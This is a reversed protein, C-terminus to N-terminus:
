TPNREGTLPPAVKLVMFNTEVYRRSSTRTGSCGAIVCSRDSCVRAHVAKFAEFSMRLIFAERLRFEIGTLMGEGACKKVMEYPKLSRVGISPAIGYRLREAREILGEQLLAEVTAIGARM